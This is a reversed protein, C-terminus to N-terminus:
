LLSRRDYSTVQNWVSFETEAFGEDFEHPLINLETAKVTFIIMCDFMFVLLELEWRVWEMLGIQHFTIVEVFATARCESREGDTAM